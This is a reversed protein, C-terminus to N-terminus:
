RWPLVARSPRRTSSRSEPSQSETGRAPPLSPSWNRPRRQRQSHRKQLPPAHLYTSLNERRHNHQNMQIIQPKTQTPQKTYQCKKTTKDCKTWKKKTVNQYIERELVLYRVWEIPLGGGNVMDWKSGAHNCFFLKFLFLLGWVETGGPLVAVIDWVFLCRQRPTFMFGFNCWMKETRNATM